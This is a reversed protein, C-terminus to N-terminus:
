SRRADYRVCGSNSDRDEGECVWGDGHSWKDLGQRPLPTGPPRTAKAAIYIPEMTPTHAWSNVLAIGGPRLTRRMERLADVGDNPLVFLLANGISHTFTDDKFTLAAADMHQCIAPWSRDAAKMRYINLADDNVDTGRITLTAALDELSAIVAETGAGTGCGNDHVIAGSPIASIQALTTKALQEMGDGVLNDFLTPSPLLAQKPMFTNNSEPSNM